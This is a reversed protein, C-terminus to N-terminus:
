DQDRKRFEEYWNEVIRIKPSETADEDVRTVTLFKQGDASVAYRTTAYPSALDASEFLRSPKGLTFGQETEVSVAMLTNRGEVYYLETGDGAWAPQRGGNVSAQWIGAGDPFTRVYIENRGTEDSVYALFRGDPSFLPDVERAPTNLFTVPESPTGNADLELYRIDGDIANFYVLYRGDPSWDPNAAGEESLVVLPDGSGDAAKTELTRLGPGGHWYAIEQGSPSWAPCMEVGEDFTLRTKTSRSLDHVWIDNSGGSDTSVVAVRRGDPSLDPNNLGLQPQGVTELLDGTRDRWVLTRAENVSGDAFVLTGDQSVSPQRANPRLPLAAGSFQLTETSFPRAWLDYVDREAQYILHGTSASYFPSDGSGLEVTQGTELNKAFMLSTTQGGVALVLARGAEPPLFHPQSVASGETVLDTSGIVQKTSGGEASVEHLRASQSRGSSLVISDGSPSWTAQFFRTGPLPCILGSSGGRVPIMKLERGAAFGILQSDPSWFPFVAGETGLLKRPEDQDLDQVWLAGGDNATTFAIHKGDPSIALGTGGVLSGYLDAPPEFAFRRLAKGPEQALPGTLLIALAALLALALVAALAQLAPKASRKMVVADPPLAEVPNLTQGVIAPVEGTMGTTRLISSRGSRLKDSLTRLERAVEQAAGTRDERDKALCKGVIFELEMPVGARISTLPAPEEHVIEYLLAQDYQGQFPRGGAVMEYIVCGLSWVDSRHDVEAGQAQEPSMYAVTGVTTDVKTLRSAETLRALGFDMITARGKEDVLLNAPKIDRHVVAKEHAAQLGDAVQRAIDLADKIPLPGEAIREELMAGEIFAMAIFTKGAAEDIEYVPCINPHNLAAAAKAERLFRQKAEEDNLLHAALFKLAVTRELKADTAKYVVGMGGEGLKDLVRYHSISQGTM